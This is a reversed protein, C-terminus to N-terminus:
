TAVQTSSRSVRARREFVCVIAPCEGANKHTTRESEKRGCVGVTWDPSATLCAIMGFRVVKQEGAGKRDVVANMEDATM